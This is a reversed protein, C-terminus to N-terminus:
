TVGKSDYLLTPPLLKWVTRPDTTPPDVFYSHFAFVCLYQQNLQRSVVSLQYSM